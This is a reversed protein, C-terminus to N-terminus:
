FGAFTAMKNLSLTVEEKVEECGSEAGLGLNASLIVKTNVKKEEKEGSVLEKLEQKGNNAKTCKLAGKFSTVESGNTVTLKGIAGGTIKVLLTPKTLPGCEILLTGTLLFAAAPITGSDVLHVTGPVLIVGDADGPTNCKQGEFEANTFTATYSGKEAGSAFSAELNIKESTIPASLATSLEAINAGTAATTAIINGTTEGPLATVTPLTFASASSVAVAALACVALVALGLMKLRQM